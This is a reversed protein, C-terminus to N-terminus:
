YDWLSCTEAPSPARTVWQELVIRAVEKELHMVDQEWTSEVIGVLCFAELGINLCYVEEKERVCSVKKHAIVLSWILWHLGDLSVTQNKFNYSFLNAHHLEQLRNFVFYEKFPFYTLRCCM